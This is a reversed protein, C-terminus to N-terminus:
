KNYLSYYSSGLVSADPDNLLYQALEVVSIFCINTGHHPEIHIDGKYEIDSDLSEKFSRLKGDLAYIASQPSSCAVHPNAVGHVYWGKPIHEPHIYGHWHSISIGHSKYQKLFNSNPNIHALVSAIIANGVAHALIVQTDFSTKYDNDVISDKQTQLFMKGGSLGMKILDTKPNVHTKDSGSKQSLVWVEPVKLWYTKDLNIKIFLEDNHKMYDDETERGILKQYELVTLLPSIKSPLQMALFGYSMGNRNDLYRKVIWRYFNNRFPLDGIKKGAPYLSTKNFLLAGEVLDKVQNKHNEDAIDFFKKLIVFESIKCPYIPAVIKPVLAHLINERFNKEISFVPHSANFNYLIWKEKDVGIVINTMHHAFLALATDFHEHFSSKESINKPFDLITIISNDKFSNIYQMPLNESTQEGLVVVSIGKKIKTRKFLYAISDLNFYHRKQSLGFIISSLYFLNNVLIKLVFKWTKFISVKTLSDEYPVINVKMEEFTKKLKKAFYLIEPSINKEECPFFAINMKDAMEEAKIYVKNKIGLIAQITEQNLM